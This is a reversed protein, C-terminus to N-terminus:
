DFNGHGIPHWARTVRGANKKRGSLEMPISRRQRLAVHSSLSFCLILSRGSLASHGGLYIKKVTEDAILEDAKGM